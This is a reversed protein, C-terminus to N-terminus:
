CHRNGPLWDRAFERYAGEDMPFAIFYGQAIDCNLHCLLDLDARTEVGEAVSTIDLKKALQLSSELIVRASTHKVAKMVFSQDVKLETFAIRTLQQMSSYGTGYDDISLGFGKMRLRALNELTHGIDTTAASETVELVMHRPELKQARVLATVKDAINVDNLSKISINVSVSVDMGTSRWGSCAAASKALMIWTLDDIKGHEELITVFAGPAIIRGDPKRWRALAEAGKILGTALDIKPQYFPEFENNQMGQVIEEITFVPNSLRASDAQAPQHRSILPLLKAPTLPKECVGLLNIGYADSMIAVSALLNRELASGLIVSTRTGSQGLRRVFEMGDMGPMDLDSIVIEVPRTPDQLINLAALGDAAEYVTIAGLGKLTRVLSRRQFDHDDAVLFRLNGVSATM